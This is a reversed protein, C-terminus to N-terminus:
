YVERQYCKECYVIEPKNPAYPTEFEVECKGKHNSHKKDCMCQRHWLKMPNRWGVREYHRCNPCLVPLPLNKRQLFSLESEIIKFAGTCLHTCDGRHGCELVEKLIDSTVEFIDDPIESNKLTIEYLRKEREVWNFSKEDATNKDLPFYEQALTENYGWPSFEPPFFEGYKYPINNKTIYPMKNMHEKIKPVLKNYEEKTYQKNLICYEANKLEMCGFCDSCNKCFASYELDASILCIMSFFQRSSNATPAVSEYELEGGLVGACDMIDKSDIVRFSYKINESGRVDFSEGVRNSNIIFEGTANNSNVINAYKVITNEQLNKFEEKIKKLESFKNLQLDEMLKDYEVKTFQKNRFVYKKNRLGTSLFCDRCNHCDLLFLSDLCNKTRFVYHCNYNGESDVNYSCQDLKQVGLNDISDKSNDISDSYSVDECKIVSYSLYANKNDLTYNTYDSNVLNGTRYNLLHPVNKLLKYFQSLFPVDWNIKEAYDRPDWKDSTWCDNCLVSFENGEPYMTIVQKKCLSCTKKHLSRHNRWVLRRILRCEPCFTPPPVRIKKYFSFDDPEITFDKHCNQCNRNELQHPMFM